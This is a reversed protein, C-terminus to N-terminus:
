PRRGGSPPCFRMPSRSRSSRRSLRAVLLNNKTREAIGPRGGLLFISKRKKSAAECLFPLMDTGNVNELMPTKLMKCAIKVGIGDPFIDPTNKLIDLYEQDDFTQNFCDPNVFFFRRKEGSEVTDIIRKVAENMTLNLFDVGFLKIKSSSGYDESHFFYAIVTKLILAIDSVSNRRMYYERDVQNRDVHATGSSKQVFWLSFIGPRINFIFSDGYERSEPDYIRIGPGTLGLKRRLVYWFLSSGAFASSESNFLRLDMPKGHLGLVTVTKFIPTFLIIKRTLFLLFVPITVIIFLFSAIFLECIKDSSRMAAQHDAFQKKRKQTDKVRVKSELLRSEFNRIETIRDGKVVSPDNNNSKKMYKSLTRRM